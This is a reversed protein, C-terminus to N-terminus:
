EVPNELRVGAVEVCVTDGRNLKGVGAPTGTAIVDGPFLTMARAVYRVLDPIPFAMDRAFGEQVVAGNLTTRVGLESLDFRTCVWPGFPCFTDFSKARAWQGDLKQLDRATVDNLPVVGLVYDMPDEGEGIDKCRRSIVLAIEGEYEVQSSDAPIRIVGGPDLIASPAKLFLLPREPMPNGLEKAHERYNRGVCVIKSPRCPALLRVDEPGVEQPGPLIIRGEPTRTAEYERGEWIV